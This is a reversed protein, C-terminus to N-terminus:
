CPNTRLGCLCLGGSEAFPSMTEPVSFEVYVFTAQRELWEVAKVLKQRFILNSGLTFYGAFKLTGQLSYFASCIEFYKFISIFPQQKWNFVFCCFLRQDMGFGGVTESIVVNFSFCLIVNFASFFGEQIGISGFETVPNIRCDAKHRPHTTKRM